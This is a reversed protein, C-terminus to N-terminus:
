KVGRRKVPKRTNREMLSHLMKRQELYYTTAEPDSYDMGCSGCLWRKGRPYPIRECNAGCLCEFKDM